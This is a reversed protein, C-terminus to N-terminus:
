AKRMKCIFFGDTCHIHPWLTLMGNEAEGNEIPLEFKETSFQENGALFKDIVDENERKLVTCTSYLLCGGSKVYKAANQLIGLQIEPLRKIEEPSKYRIEPKKRIIGLGSCPVDAIVADATGTLEKNEESADAAMTDIIDIGLRKAGNRVLRLKKDYIDCSLIKGHNKMRIASAFSKGGPASCVDIVFSGPEPNLASASLWAAADQVYIEGRLFMEINELRGPSILEFCSGMGHVRNYRIGLERLSNEVSEADTKLTNVQVTLPATENNKELLARCGDIGLITEFEKVLWEPNSYQVSLKETETKGTIEPLNDKNAAIKRLIANVFGAARTNAYKKTLEAAENVVAHVPIRDMRLLQYVSIRLIDLVMPEIKSIGGKSFSKIYYDCLYLNQLVGYCIASALAAERSDLNEQKVISDLIQGSWAGNKRFSAVAKLAAERGGKIM